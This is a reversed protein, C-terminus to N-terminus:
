PFGTRNRQRPEMLPNSWTYIDPIARMAPDRYGGVAISLYYESDWAVHDNMFPELLYIKGAQYNPLTGTETWSLSRDPAQLNIRGIVYAQYAIMILAWGLWILIITGSKHFAPQIFRRIFKKM